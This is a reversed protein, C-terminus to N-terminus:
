PTVARRHIRNADFINRAARNGVLQQGLGMRTSGIQHNGAGEAM